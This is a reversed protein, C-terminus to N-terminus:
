MEKKCRRLEDHRAVNGRTGGKCFSNFGDNLWSYLHWLARITAAVQSLKASSEEQLMGVPPFMLFSYASSSRSSVRSCVREGTVDAAANHGVERSVMELHVDIALAVLFGQEKGTQRRPPIHVLLL